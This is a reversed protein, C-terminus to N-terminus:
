SNTEWNVNVIINLLKRALVRQKILSMTLDNDMIGLMEWYRLEVEAHLAYEVCTCMCM